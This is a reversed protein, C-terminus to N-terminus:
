QVAVFVPRESVDITVHGDGVTLRQEGGTTSEPELTMLKAESAGPVDLRYGAVEEQNGTPCWVAYVSRGPPGGGGFRYIRV